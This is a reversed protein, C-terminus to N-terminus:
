NILTFDRMMLKTTYQYNVEELLNNGTMAQSLNFKDQNHTLPIGNVHLAAIFDGHIKLYSVVDALIHDSWTRINQITLLTSSEGTVLPYYIKSPPEEFEGAVEM